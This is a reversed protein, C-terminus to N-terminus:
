QWSHSTIQINLDIGTNSGISNPCRIVFYKETDLDVLMESDTVVFSVQVVFKSAKGDAGSFVEIGNHAVVSM